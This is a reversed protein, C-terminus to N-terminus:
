FNNNFSITVIFYIIIHAFLIIDNREIDHNCLTSILLIIIAILIVFHLKIGYTIFM